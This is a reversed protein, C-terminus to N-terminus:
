CDVTGGALRFVGDSEVNLPVSLKVVGGVFRNTGSVWLQGSNAANSIAGSWDGGALRVGPLYASPDTWAAIEVPEGSVDRAVIATANANGAMDGVLRGIHFRGVGSAFRLAGSADSVTANGFADATQLTYAFDAAAVSATNTFQISPEGETTGSFSMAGASLNFRCLSGSAGEIVGSGEVGAFKANCTSAFRVRADPGALSIKATSFGFDDEMVLTAGDAVTVTGSVYAKGVVTLTGASVTASGYYRTASGGIDTVTLTGGGKKEISYSSSNANYPQCRGSVVLSAGDEVTISANRFIYASNGPTLTVRGSKVVINRGISVNYALSVEGGDGPDFTAVDGYSTSAGGSGPYGDGTNGSTGNKWNTQDSWGGTGSADGVYTYNVAAAFASLSCMAALMVAMQKM